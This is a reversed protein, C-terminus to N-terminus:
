AYVQIQKKIFKIVQEALTSITKGLTNVLMEKAPKM